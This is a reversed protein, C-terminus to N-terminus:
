SSFSTIISQYYGTLWRVMDRVSEASSFGNQNVASIEVMKLMWGIAGHASM